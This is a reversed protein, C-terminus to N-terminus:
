SLCSCFSKLTILFACYKQSLMCKIASYESLSFKISRSNSKNCQKMYCKLKQEKTKEKKSEREDEIVARTTNGGGGRRWEGKRRRM